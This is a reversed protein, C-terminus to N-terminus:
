IRAKIFRAPNGACIAGPPLSTTVVSGMGVVTGDGITVGDRVCVNAGLWVDSGIVIGKSQTSQERILEDSKIGHNFAYIACGSAIRTNNGIRIGKTGGDINARANVSVNDGLTVPGHLFVHAAISCGNGISINRGPEAFIAADPSVFCNEGISVTELQTLAEQIEKQWPLAWELHSPKLSFYLWPMWSLRKKHQEQYFNSTMRKDIVSNTM